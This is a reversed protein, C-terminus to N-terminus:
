TITTGNYCYIWNTLGLWNTPLNHQIFLLLIQVLLFSHSQIASFFLLLDLMHDGTNVSV